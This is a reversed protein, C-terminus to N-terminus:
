LTQTLVPSFAVAPGEVVSREPRSSLENALFYPREELIHTFRVVFNDDRSSRVRIGAVRCEGVDAYVAKTLSLRMFNALAVLRLLFDPPAYHLSRSHSKGRNERLSKLGIREAKHPGVLLRARICLM